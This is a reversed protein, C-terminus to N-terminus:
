QQERLQQGTTCPPPHLWSTTGAPSPCPLSPAASPSLLARHITFRSSVSSTPPSHLMLLSPARPTYSILAPSKVVNMQILVAVTGQLRHRQLRCSCGPQPWAQLTVPTLHNPFQNIYIGFAKRFISGSLYKKKHSHSVKGICM